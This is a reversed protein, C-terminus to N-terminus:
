EPAGESRANGVGAGARAGAVVCSQFLPVAIAGGIMGGGGAIGGGGVAGMGVVGFVGLFFLTTLDMDGSDGAETALVAEASAAAM